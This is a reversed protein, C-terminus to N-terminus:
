NSTDQELVVPFYTEIALSRVKALLAWDTFNKFPCKDIKCGKKEGRCGIPCMPTRCIYEKIM